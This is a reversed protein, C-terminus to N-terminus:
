AVVFRVYNIALSYGIDGHVLKVTKANAPVTVKNIVFCDTFETNTLGCDGWTDENTPYAATGDIEIWYRYDSEDETDPNSAADENGHKAMNYWYRSSHSSYSMKCSFMVQYNGAPLGNAAWSSETENGNSPRGNMKTEGQNWGTADNVDCRYGVLGCSCTEKTFLGTKTGETWTDDEISHNQAGGGGGGPNLGQGCGTLTFAALLAVMSFLKNRM